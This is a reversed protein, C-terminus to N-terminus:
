EKFQSSGRIEVKGIVPSHQALLSTLKGWQANDAAGKIAGCDTHGLVVVLKAGARQTAFELSGLIDTNVFNGAIRAVFIDGIRQDFVLEPPV